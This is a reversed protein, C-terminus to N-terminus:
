SRGEGTWIQPDRGWIWFLLCAVAAIGAAWTWIQPWGHIRILRWDERSVRGDGDRDAQRMAATLGATSYRVGRDGMPTMPQTWAEAASLTILEPGAGAVEEWSPLPALVREQGGGRSREVAVTVGQYRHGTYGAVQAGAFMGIGLILLTVFSQARASMGPPAVRAAYMSSGTVVFGYSFGHLLLGAVVAAPATVAFLLYRVTWAAMGVVLVKKLGVKAIFWPMVIMTGLESLQSLTMMAAPKPMALEAMFANTWTTYYTKSITVLPIAIAFVLFAPNKLLGAASLGLKESASKVNGAPPTHPLTLCYVALVAEAAAALQFFRGTKEGLVLGVTLGAVIWGANGGMAIRPFKTGDELHRFVLNNMLSLTPMFFLADIVILAMLGPFERFQVALFLCIASAAHLVALAKETALYRDAVYGACLPSILAGLASAGCIWGIETGGFGLTGNMYSSIPVIWAGWVFFELFM